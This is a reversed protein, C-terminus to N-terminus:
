CFGGDNGGVGRVGDVKAALSIRTRMRHGAFAAGVVMVRRRPLVMLITKTSMVALAWPVLRMAERLPLVRTEIISITGALVSAVAKTSEAPWPNM